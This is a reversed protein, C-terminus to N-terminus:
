ELIYYYLYLDADYLGGLRFPEDTTDAVSIGTSSAFATIWEGPEIPISSTSTQDTHLMPLHNDLWIATSTADYIGGDAINTEGTIAGLGNVPITIGTSVDDTVTNFNVFATTSTGMYFNYTTTALGRQVIVSRTRDFYIRQGTTNQIAFVTSTGTQSDVLDFCDTMARFNRQAVQNEPDSYSYCGTNSIGNAIGSLDLNPNDFVGNAELIASSADDVHIGGDTVSGSLNCEYVTNLLIVRENANNIFIAPGGM